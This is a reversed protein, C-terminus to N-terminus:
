QCDRWSAIVLWLVGLFLEGMSVENNLAPALLLVYIVLGDLITSQGSLAKSIKDAGQQFQRHTSLPTATVLDKVFQLWSLCMTLSLLGRVTHSPDLSGVVWPMEDSIFDFAWLDPVGTVV